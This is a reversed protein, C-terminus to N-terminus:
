FVVPPSPDYIPVPDWWGGAISQLEADSLEGNGATKAAEIDARTVDGFGHSELLAKRDAPAARAIEDRFARDTGLKVILQGAREVSM